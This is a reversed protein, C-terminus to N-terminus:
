SFADQKIVVIGGNSANQQLRSIFSSGPSLQSLKLVFWDAVVNSGSVPSTSEVQCAGGMWVSDDVLPINRHLNLGHELVGQCRTRGGRSLYLERVALKRLKLM